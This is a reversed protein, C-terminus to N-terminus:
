PRGPAAHLTALVKEAITKCRSWESTSSQVMPIPTGIGYDYGTLSNDAFYDATISGPPTDPFTYVTYDIKGLQVTQYPYDGWGSPLKVGITCSAVERSQLTNVYRDPNGPESKDVWANPDYDMVLPKYWQLSFVGPTLTPVTTATSTPSPTQRASPYVGMEVYYWTTGRRAFFAVMNRAQVPNLAASSCCGYHPIQDYNLPLSQGAFSVGLRDNKKFLYFHMDKLM